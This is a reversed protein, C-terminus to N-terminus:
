KIPYKENLNHFVSIAEEASIIGSKVGEGIEEMLTILFDLEDFSEEEENGIITERYKNCIDQLCQIAEETPIRGWKVGHEVRDALELLKRNYGGSGTFEEEKM